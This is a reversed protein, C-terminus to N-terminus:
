DDRANAIAASKWARVREDEEFKWLFDAAARRIALMTLRKLYNGEVDLSAGIPPAAAYDQATAQGHGTWGSLVKESGRVVDASYTIDVSSGAIPWPADCGSYAALSLRIVYRGDHMSPTGGAPVVVVDEFMASFLPTFTAVSAPGLVVTWKEAIYGRSATCRYNRLAEDYVAAMKLPVREVVPSVRPPEVTVTRACSSALICLCAFAIPPQRM